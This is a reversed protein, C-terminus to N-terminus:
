EGDTTPPQQGAGGGPGGFTAAGEAISDAAVSGDDATEGQVSVTDGEALDSVAADSTTTVSTDADTTVTIQEGDATEILVTDGDVSVVTGTTLGGFGGDGSPFGQGDVVQGGPGGMAGPGTAQTSSATAQGIAVGGVVGIALTAALALAPTAIRKWRRQTPPVPAPEPTATPELTSTTTDSM